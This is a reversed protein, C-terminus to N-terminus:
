SQGTVSTENVVNKGRKILAEIIAMKITIKRKDTVLM